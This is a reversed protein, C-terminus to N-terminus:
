AKEKIEPMNVEFSFPFVEEGRDFSSVFQQAEMPMRGRKEWPHALVAHEGGEKGLKVVMHLTGVDVHQGTARSAALSIPL